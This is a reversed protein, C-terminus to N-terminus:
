GEQVTRHPRQFTLLAGGTKEPVLAVNDATIDGIRRGRLFCVLGYDQGLPFKFLGSTQFLDADTWGLALARERIDNVKLYDNFSPSEEFRWDGPLPYALIPLSAELDAFDEPKEERALAIARQEYATYHPSPIIPTGHADLLCRLDAQGAQQEDTQIDAWGNPFWEDAPYSRVIWGQWSGSRTRVRRGAFADDTASTEIPSESATTADQLLVDIEASRRVSPVPYTMPSFTRVTQLLSDEGFLTVARDHLANFRQRLTDYHTDPLIGADHQYRAREMQARLWAYYDPSLRRFCKGEIVVDGSSSPLDDRCDLDTAVFPYPIHTSPTTTTTHM